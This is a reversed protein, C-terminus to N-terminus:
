KESPRMLGNADTLTYIDSNPNLPNLNTEGGFTIMQNSSSAYVSSHFRRLQGALGQSWTATGGHGNAGSLIWVDDLIHEGNYGAYITMRNNVSDYIATHGSRASPGQNSATLETWAPTGGTGNANSLLWIDGFESGFADGGFVILTNTTSDYVASSSERESPASGTPALETWSPLASVDNANKLVWVDNYYSTECNYGGFIILTNTVSDYVSSHLQRVPPLSGSPQLTVWTPTGGQTNANELVHYDNVCPGPYGTGGGFVMMRDSVSDFLGTHGFRPKPIPGSAHIVTWKLNTSGIIDTAEWYDNFDLNTKSHQGGFVFLNNSSSDYYVSQSYRVAPGGLVWKSGAKTVGNAGYFTFAHSNTSLKDATSAGAFVYMDNATSSYVASHYALSPATTATTIQIWSPSGIGNSSTLIWTDTLTAGGNVGGFITMRDEGSDYIASQGTRPKPATGSPSLQAWVPTGGSGNANSLTWVDGFGAGGADGAYITLINNVSDYVASASERASPPTGSTQLEHWAPTGDVGNAHTLVWADNFYGTSCNNGGFVIMADTTPDYAGASYVRPAPATGTPAAATWSATGSGNAGELIWVDNACPSPLGEAGGFITMRNSTPDYTAVHGYRGAPVTGTPLLQTFRDDQNSSTVGLWVDNLDTDISTEQGGFIIMQASTPDYVATHSHRSQPGALTWVQASLFSSAGLVLPLFFTLRKM